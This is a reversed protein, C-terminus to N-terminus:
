RPCCGSTCGSSSSSPFSRLRPAPGSKDTEDSADDKPYYGFLPDDKSPQENAAVAPNATGDVSSQPDSNAVATEVTPPASTQASAIPKTAPAAWEFTSLQNSASRCGVSAALIIGCLVLQGKVSQFCPM